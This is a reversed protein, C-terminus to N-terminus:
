RGGGPWPLALPRLAPLDVKAYIRTTDPDCHGLLGGIEALSAGRQILATALSHRLLHAGTRPSQIGARALARAVLTSITTANALGVWPARLRLFVRRSGGPPRGRQLYAVLAAGVELPLPLEHERRGKSRLRVCGVQWDLDDLTLSVVEGARLGLRALLLLIAYDRRGAPTRRDCSALLHHVQDPPLGKPLTAWSRTAVAPVCAALDTALAGRQRLYRLFARLATVLLKARGARAEDAHRQVFRTIDPPRLASFRPPRQGFQERLFQGAVPVYNHVTAQALGREQVLCRTFAALTAAHPGRACPVEAPIVNRAQLFALLSRLTAADGRRRDHRRRRARRYRALHTPIQAARLGQRELWSSLDALIRRKGAASQRCYGQEQLLAAFADAYPALPGRHLRQRAHPHVVVLNAM